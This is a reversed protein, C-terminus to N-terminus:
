SEGSGGDSEGIRKLYREIAMEAAQPLEREVYEDVRRKSYEEVKAGLQERMVTALVERLMAPLVERVVGPLASRVQELVVPQLSRLLAEREETRLGSPPPAARHMGSSPSGTPAGFAAAAAAAPHASSSPATFAASVATAGGMSAVQPAANLPASPPPAVLPASPPPAVLPASPPPAVLPASPPPAILPASPPAAVLPNGLVPPPPAFLGPARGVPAPSAGVLPPPASVAPRLPPPAVPRSGAFYGRAAGQDRVGQVKALLEASRFPKKLEDDAGAALIAATDVAHYGGSLLLIPVKGAAADARLAGCFSAADMDPLSYDVIVAVPPSRRILALAESGTLAPVVEIGSGHYAWEVVGCVTRSDDVVVIRQSM